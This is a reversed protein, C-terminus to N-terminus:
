CGLIKKAIKVDKLQLGKEFSTQVLHDMLPDMDDDDDLIVFKDVPVQQLWVNIEAGRVGETLSVTAGIIREPFQFGAKSLLQQLHFLTNGIRWTSSIVVNAKTTDLLKNLLAVAKPDIMDLDSITGGPSRKINKLFESHNLVGDIDLFVVKM